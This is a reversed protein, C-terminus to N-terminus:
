FACPEPRTPNFVYIPQTPPGGFTDLKAELADLAIPQWQTPYATEIFTDIDNDYDLHWLYHTNVPIQTYGCKMEYEYTSTNVIEDCEINASIKFWPQKEQYDNFIPLYHVSVSLDLEVDNIKNVVCSSSAYTGEKPGNAYENLVGNKRKLLFPSQNVISTKLIDCAQELFIDDYAFSKLSSTLCIILVSFLLKNFKM